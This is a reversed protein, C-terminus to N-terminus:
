ELFCPGGALSQGHSRSSIRRLSALHDADQASDLAEHAGLVKVSEDDLVTTLDREGRDVRLQLLESFAALHVHHHRVPTFRQIASADDVHM